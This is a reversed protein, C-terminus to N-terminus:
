KGPTATLCDQRINAMVFSKFTDYPCDAVGCAPITMQQQLPPTQLTLATGNRMQDLSPVVYFLRVIYQGAASSKHLEFVLAGTPAPDDPQYGAMQWHVGLFEGINAVNPTDHGVFMTFKSNAPALAAADKTGTLAQDMTGITQRMLNSVSAQTYSPLCNFYKFFAVNLATLEYLGGAPMAGWAFCQAGPTAPCDAAPMGEAYELEFTETLESALAFLAFTSIAAVDKVLASSDTVDWLLQFQSAYQTKLCSPDGGTMKQLAAMDTSFDSKCLGADVTEFYPDPAAAAFQVQVGCDPTKEGQFMGDLYGQATQKTREDTDAYVYVAGDDPCTGRAPLLGQGAYYDRYWSGLDTAVQKGKASLYGPVDAPPSWDPFGQPRGTFLNMVTNPLTPSRIGHRSVAVVSLLETDAADDNDDDAPSVDDDTPSADDDVQPPSSSSSSPACNLALLAIITLAMLSFLWLSRPFM